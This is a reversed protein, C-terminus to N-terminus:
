RPSGSWLKLHLPHGPDVATREVLGDLVDRIEEANQIADPIENPGGRAAGDNAAILNKLKTNM